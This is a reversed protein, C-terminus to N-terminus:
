GSGLENQAAPTLPVLQPSNHWHSLQPYRAPANGADTGIDDFSGSTPANHGEDKFPM